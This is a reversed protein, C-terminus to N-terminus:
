KADIGQNTEFEENKYCTYERIFNNIYEYFNLVEYQGDKITM